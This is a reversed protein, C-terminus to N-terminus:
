GQAAKQAQKAAIKAAKGRLPKKVKALAALSGAAFGLLECTVQGASMSRLRVLKQQDLVEPSTLVGSREVYLIGNPGLCKAAEVIAEDQLNLAYPPDIFIVDYYSAAGELFQFADGQHVRIQTGNAEKESLKAAAHKLLAAQRSDREVFDAAKMGRSLAEFGLAGSGAFLHGLWDFVTERVREPTPRLGNRDAVALPTRRWRGGVIRVAGEREGRSTTLSASVADKRANRPSKLMKM